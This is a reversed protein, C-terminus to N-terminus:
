KINKKPDKKMESQAKKAHENASEASPKRKPTDGIEHKKGPESHRKTEEQLHTATKKHNAANENSSSTMEKNKGTQPNTNKDM